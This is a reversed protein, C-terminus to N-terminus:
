ANSENVHFMGMLKVYLYKIYVKLYKLHAVPLLIYVKQLSNTKKDTVNTQIEYNKSIPPFLM